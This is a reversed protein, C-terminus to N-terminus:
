NLASLWCAKSDIHIDKISAEEFGSDFIGLAYGTQAPSHSTSQWSINSGCQSCFNRLVTDTSKFSTIKDIGQSIKIDSENFTAYSGYAAGHQKQCMICHCHSVRLPAAYAQFKVAGCLCSGHHSTYHM